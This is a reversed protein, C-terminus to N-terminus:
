RVGVYKEALDAAAFRSTMVHHIQALQLQADFPDGNTHMMSTFWWSFRTAGWVKELAKRSYDDAFAQNSKTLLEVLTEGLLRVDNAALNLGKAGTPPVTHAADGALFLRGYQMKNSVFSRMALISKETIPGRELNWGDLALRESLEDWCREDSWNAIDDKTDVQLYLRTVKESRMSNLAFGNPHWAYVLEDISPKVNAMIGLWSFPYVKEFCDKEVDPISKRSVGWFGDCGAIAECEITQKKGESDTFHITPKTSNIDVLNVDSVEYYIKQGNADCATHLDRQIETQGYAWVTQGVLEKFNIHHRNGPIQLYIGQHEFGEKHLRDGVGIDDLLSVLQTELIGARVRSQVYERSRSEIVVSEINHLALYRSLILGAPGAGIIAVRTKINM